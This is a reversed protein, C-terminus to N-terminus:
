RQGNRREMMSRLRARFDTAPGPTASAANPQIQRPLKHLANVRGPAVGLVLWDDGIEILVVRERPGVATGAVVKLLGATAGRPASIKKLLWLSALIMVVVLALGALMQLLGSGMPPPGPAPADARALSWAVSLVPLICIRCLTNM